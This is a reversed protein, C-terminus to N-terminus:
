RLAEKVVNDVSSSNMAGEFDGNKFKNYMKKMDFIIYVGFVIYWFASVFTYLTQNGTIVSRIFSKPFQFQFDDGNPLTLTFSKDQSDRSTFANQISSFFSSLDATNNQTNDQIDINNPATTNEDFLKDNMGSIVNTQNNISDTQERIINTQDNIAQTQEALSNTIDENGTTDGSGDGPQPAPEYASGDVYATTRTYTSYYDFSRWNGLYDQISWGYLIRIQDDVELDEDILNKLPIYFSNTSSNFLDTNNTLIVVAKQRFDDDGSKKISVQIYAPFQEGGLDLSANSLIIPYDMGAQSIDYSSSDIRLTTSDFSGLFSM